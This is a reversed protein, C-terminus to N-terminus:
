FIWPHHPYFLIKKHYLWSIDLESLYFHKLLSYHKLVTKARALKGSIREITIDYFFLKLLPSIWKMVAGLVSEVARKSIQFESGVYM